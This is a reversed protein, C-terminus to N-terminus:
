FAAEEAGARLAEPAMWQLVAAAAAAAMRPDQATKVLAELELFDAGAM